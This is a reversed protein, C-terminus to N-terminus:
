CSSKMWYQGKWEVLNGDDEYVESESVQIPVEKHNKQTVIMWYWIYKSTIMIVIIILFVASEGCMVGNKFPKIEKEEKIESM